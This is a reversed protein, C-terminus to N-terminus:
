RTGRGGRWRWGTAGGRAGGARSRARQQEMLADFDGEITLEQEGLLEKTM